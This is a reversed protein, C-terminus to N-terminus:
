AQNGQAALHLSLIFRAKLWSSTRQYRNILWYCCIHIKEACYVRSFSPICRQTANQGGSETLFLPFFGIQATYRSIKATKLLHVNKEPVEKCKRMKVMALVAAQTKVATYWPPARHRSVAIV